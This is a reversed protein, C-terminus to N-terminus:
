LSCSWALASGARESWAGDRAPQGRGAVKDEARQRAGDCGLWPEGRSCVAVRSDM